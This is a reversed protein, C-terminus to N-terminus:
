YQMQGVGDLGTLPQADASGWGPLTNLHEGGLHSGPEGVPQTRKPSEVETAERARLVITQGPNPIEAM